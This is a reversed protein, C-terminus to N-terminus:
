QQAAMRNIRMHLSFDASLIPAIYRSIWEVRRVKELDIPGTREFGQARRAGEVTAAFALGMETM